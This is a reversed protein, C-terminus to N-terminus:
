HIGRIINNSITLYTTWNIFQLEKTLTQCQKKLRLVHDHEERYKFKWFDADAQLGQNAQSAQNSWYAGMNKKSVHLLFHGNITNYDIPSGNVM